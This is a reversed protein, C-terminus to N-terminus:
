HSCYTLLISILKFLLCIIFVQRGRTSVKADITENFGMATPTTTDAKRKVGKKVKAPQQQSSVPVAANMTPQTMLYPASSTPIQSANTSPPQNNILSHLNPQVDPISPTAKLTNTTSTEAPLPVFPQQDVSPMPKPTSPTVKPPIGGVFTGVPPKPKKKVVKNISSEIKIEEKPMQAVKGRFIKELAQAM